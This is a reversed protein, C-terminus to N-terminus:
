SGHDARVETPTGRDEAPRVDWARTQLTVAWAAQHFESRPRVAGEALGWFVAVVALTNLTGELFGVGVACPHTCLAEAAHPRVRM